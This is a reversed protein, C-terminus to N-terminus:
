LFIQFVLLWVLFGQLQEAELICREKYNARWIRNWHNLVREISISQSEESVLCRLYIIVVFKLDFEIAFQVCRKYNSLWRHLIIPLPHRNVCKCTVCLQMNIAFIRCCHNMLSSQVTVPFIHIFRTINRIRPLNIKAKIRHFDESAHLKVFPLSRIHTQTHVLSRIPRSTIDAVHRDDIMLLIEARHNSFFQNRESTQGKWRAWRPVFSSFLSDSETSTICYSVKKNVCFIFTQIKNKM